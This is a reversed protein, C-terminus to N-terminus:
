QLVLSFQGPHSPSHSPHSFNKLSLWYLVAPPTSGSHSVKSRWASRIRRRVWCATPWAPTPARTKPVPERSRWPGTSTSETSAVMWDAAKDTRSGTWLSFLSVQFLTVACCEGQQIVRSCLSLEPGRQSKLHNSECSM